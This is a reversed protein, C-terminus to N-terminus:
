HSSVLFRHIHMLINEMNALPHSHPCQVKLTTLHIFVDRLASSTSSRKMMQRYASCREEDVPSFLSVLLNSLSTCKSVIVNDGHIASTFLVYEIKLSPYIASTNDLLVHKVLSHSSWQYVGDNDLKLIQDAYCITLLSFVLTKNDSYLNHSPYGIAKSVSYSKRYLSEGIQNRMLHIHWMQEESLHYKACFATIICETSVRALLNTYDNFLHLFINHDSLNKLLNNNQIYTKLTIRFAAMREKEVLPLFM